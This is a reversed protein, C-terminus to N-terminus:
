LQPPGSAEVAAALRGPPLWETVAAVPLQDAVITYTRRALLAGPETGLHAGASGARVAAVTRLERRSELRGAALERGLSAGARLLRRVTVHPLRDPVVVAEALVYAIGTHAGRLTVRRALLREDPALDLLRVDPHWWCGAADHLVDFPAPGSQRMTTTVIPEGTCAELLATVTGDATLVMRDFPDLDIEVSRSAVTPGTRSCAVAAVGHGM